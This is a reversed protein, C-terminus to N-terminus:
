RLPPAPSPAPTPIPQNLLGFIKDLARKKQDLNPYALSALDNIQELFEEFAKPPMQHQTSNVIFIVLELISRSMREVLNQMRAVNKESAEARKALNNVQETLARVEQTDTHVQRAAREIEAYGGGFSAVIKTVDTLNATTAGAVIALLGFAVVVWPKIRGRYILFAIEVFGTAIIAAGVCTLTAALM